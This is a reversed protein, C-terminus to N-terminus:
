VKESSFCTRWIPRWHSYLQHCDGQHALRLFLSSMDAALHFLGEGYGSRVTNLYFRESHSTIPQCGGEPCKEM